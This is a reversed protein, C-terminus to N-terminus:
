DKDPAHRAVIGPVAELAEDLKEGEPGGAQALDPRGGGRGGTIAAVDSVIPGAKWGTEVLDDTVVCLLMAKGDRETGLVGIGRGLKGRLADALTRLTESDPAQVRGYAVSVGEVVTGEQLIREVQTVGRNVAHKEVEKRLARNEEILAQVRELVERDGTGLEAELRELVTHEGLDHEVAERATVAEVRRVGSSISGEEELRFFGIDGTRGVHTGGCLETSWGPIDVVRVRDGYKDGFFALAGQDIAEQYGMKRTEIPTNARVARNVWRVIERQEDTDVSSFHSFDFRLREPEVLSGAQQVHTGLVDRLAAHMLHTATHNRMIRRRRRADIRAEVEGPVAKGAATEVRHFIVGSWRDVRRVSLVFGEGEIEGTDPVQGGAEAYFPTEELVVWGGEGQILEGVPSFEEDFLVALRTRVDWGEREYGTFRRGVDKPILDAAELATDDRGTGKDARDARSREQQEKLAEEFGETDVELQREEAMVETLDLPFGYTDYLVFAERGPVTGGGKEEIEEALEEFREIGKDLTEGFREEETEIVLQIRESARELEPYAGAFMDVLVPVIRHMFPEHVDLKRGHRAARRLLRRLVYGRGDNSPVVGDTIAFSLGRVHDAIVRHSMGEEGPQYAKGSLEAVKDILPRVLDTDYNSEVGQLISTLRELGMGTDISPSPLDVVEGSVLADYQMFVLNWIELFRHGDTPDISGPDTDPTPFLDYLIESCPGNPGTEGMSWYNDKKGLRYIRRKEIGTVQQWIEEAEDDEEYITVYLRDTELGAVDTLFEWAYGVAGEKFYDGFSFNGLMEFFTHHRPTRGVNELDNHKGSVRICKQSSTAREYPRSEEGTFVRKFQNMGANTFLLTPDEAPVVPSSPVEEHGREAFYDLFARRIENGTM